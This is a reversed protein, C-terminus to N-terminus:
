SRILENVNKPQLGMVQWGCVCDLARIIRIKV